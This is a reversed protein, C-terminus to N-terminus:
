RHFTQQVIAVCKRSCLRDRAHILNMTKNRVAYVKNEESIVIRKDIVHSANM